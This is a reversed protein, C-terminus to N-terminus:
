QSNNQSQRIIMNIENIIAWKSNEDQDGGIMHDDYYNKRAINNDRTLQRALMEDTFKGLEVDNMISLMVDDDIMSDDSPLDDHDNVTSAEEIMNNVNNGNAKDDHAEDEIKDNQEQQVDEVEMKEITVNNTSAEMITECHGNNANAKNSTPENGSGDVDMKSQDNMDKSGEDCKDDVDDNQTSGDKGGDDNLKNDYKSDDEGNSQKDDNDGGNENGDDEDMKDNAKDDDDNKTSEDRGDGDDDDDDNTKNDYKGDDEGDGQKDDNDGDNEDGDGEDMKDNAKDDDDNKTSEDRGDGDDDDDDNTKNDYKGDDEGNGQKDDNDGGNEDGDDEDMKDNAKDDDDNKTSEDRGDGDDDDDDNTKNDYKGDDEGDGQKDDNDGDNEDGDGEDMKDNAKDDDDNKTSEDKGDGDDDDDNTKNDYKGDDEGDGQKDDNDGDNEDGDGEDMKDNAKDDDDNKTSEDKGDGDDDDDNTKNDYKGDDEGNGQKDDNDGGNENGDDEKGDGGDDDDDDNNEDDNSQEDVEQDGREHGLWKRDKKNTKCDDDDNETGDDKGDGKDDDDDDDDDSSLCMGQKEDADTRALEENGPAFKLKKAVHDECEDYESSECESSSTSRKRKKKQEQRTVHNPSLSIRNKLPTLRKRDEDLAHQEIVELTSMFMKEANADTSEDVNGHSDDTDDESSESQADNPQEKGEKRGFLSLNVQYTICQMLEPSLEVQLKQLEELMVIQYHILQEKKNTNTTTRKKKPQTTVTEDENQEMELPLSTPSQDLTWDSRIARRVIKSHRPNPQIQHFIVQAIAQILLLYGNKTETAIKKDFTHNDIHVDPDTDSIAKKKPHKPSSYKIGKRVNKIYSNTGNYILRTLTSHPILDDNILVSLYLEYLLFFGSWLSPVGKKVCSSGIGFTTAAKTLTKFKNFTGTKGDRGIRTLRECKDRIGQAENIVDNDIYCDKELYLKVMENWVVMDKSKVNMVKDNKNLSPAIGCMWLSALLDRCVAMYIYFHLLAEKTKDIKGGGGLFKESATRRAYTVELTAIKQAHGYMNAVLSYHVIFLILECCM